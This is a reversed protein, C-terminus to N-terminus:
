LERLDETADEAALRGLSSPRSKVRVAAGVSGGGPM